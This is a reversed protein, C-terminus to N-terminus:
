WVGLVWWVPMLAFMGTLPWIPLEPVRVRWASPDRVGEEVEAVARATM